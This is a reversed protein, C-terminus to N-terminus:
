SQEKGRQFNWKTYIITAKWKELDLKVSRIIM